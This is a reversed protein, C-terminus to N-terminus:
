ERPVRHRRRWSPLMLGHVDLAVELVHSRARDPGVTDLPHGPARLVTGVQAHRAHDVAVDHAAGVCVRPDPGDIKGLRQLERAHERGHTGVVERLREVADNRAALHLHVQLVVRGDDHRAALHQVVRLRDGGNGGGRGLDGFLGRPPHLDFVVHQGDHEVHVRREPFVCRQQVLVQDRVADVRRWGPGRVERCLQLEDLTVDRFAEGFGIQHDLACAQTARTSSFSM